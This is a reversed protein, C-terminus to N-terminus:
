MFCTIYPQLNSHSGGGGASDSQTTQDRNATTTYGYSERYGSGAPARALGHTHGPIQSTTLTVTEDGGTKEVSNFTGSSAVGVPVRGQSWAIWTGGFFASPNISSVSLYISGVPWIIDFINKGNIELSSSKTPFCNIGISLKKTDFFLIPMGMPVLLDQISEGFEDKSVVQLDWAYLNDLNITTKEYNAFDTWSGWTSASIKKTRYQLKKLTNIEDVGSIQVNALLNTENEFNNVREATANVLPLVWDLITVNRSITTSNGRSDIAKVQLTLNQASNVTGFNFTGASNRDTTVGNFITQYKSITSSNQATAATFNIQLDSKNRVVLQNDQTIETVVGNTDQYNLQSATFIPNSNTVNFTFSTNSNGIFTGNSYTECWITGTGSNANPIRSYFSTPITWIYSTGVNTAITNWGSSGHEWYLVHTFGSSARNVNITTTYGINGTGGSVSSARPITTLSQSYSQESSTLPTNMSIWASCTLTKSGDNNHSINLNQSFLVIGSNTIKQSPSVAASYTTGNIKCYITGTGYTEYGTNTRFFRVSVTVNSTNNSVSQSNQSISITYKVYTNSTSMQGSTGM